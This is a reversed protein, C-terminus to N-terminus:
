PYCDWEIKLCVVSLDGFIRLFVANAVTKVIVSITPKCLGTM